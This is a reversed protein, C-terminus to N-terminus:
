SSAAKAKAPTKRGSKVAPTAAPQAPTGAERELRASRLRATKIRRKEAEDEAIQRVIRTTKDLNTEAVTKSAKFITEKTPKSM